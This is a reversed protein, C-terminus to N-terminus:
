VGEGPTIYVTTASAAVATFFQGGTLTYVKSVGPALAIVPQPTGAVPAAANANAQAASQAYALFAWVTGSNSVMYAVDGSVPGAVAVATPASAAASIAYTLGKPRFGSCSDM